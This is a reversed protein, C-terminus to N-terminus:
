TFAKLMETVCSGLTTLNYGGEQIIATPFDLERVAAGMEAFFKTPLKFGGIPDSEHTDAGFSLVLFMPKFKRIAELATALASRYDKAATGPPLPLNLNFGEGAGTGTEEAFGSFFPYLGGPDGHISVTSVDARSYFIHQTGNGHHVDVDLVAVRGRKSLRDAAIAANNFYCYGGCRDAEAHHGPPRTLVYISRETGEAILDASRAAANAGGLAAAFTGPLIPTYTDFCFQGRLARVGSARPNPGFPFVTPWLQKAAPDRAKKAEASAERLYTIYAADHIAAVPEESPKPPEEFTFGGAAELAARIADFRGPSEYSPIVAGGEVEGPPAHEAHKPNLIVRM